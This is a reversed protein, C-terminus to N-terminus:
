QARRSQRYIFERDVRTGVPFGYEGIKSFGYRQYFRQAGFNESWVGIYLPSRGRRALWELATELLRSGIRLSQRAALVYLQHIEGAAPELDGVPLKCPGAAIFGIAVGGDLSALWVARQDDALTREWAPLSHTQAIFAKLDESPYLHGFTETFTAAGLAALTAADDLTARRIATYPADDAPM